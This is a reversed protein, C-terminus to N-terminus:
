KLSVFVMLAHAQNQIVKELRFGNMQTVPPIETGLVQYVVIQLGHDRAFAIASSVRSAEGQPEGQILIEQLNPRPRWDWGEFHMFWPQLGSTWEAGSVEFHPEWQLQQFYFDFYYSRDMKAFLIADDRHALKLWSLVERFPYYQESTDILYNGWYPAKTGDLNVPSMVLNAAILVAPAVAAAARMRPAIEELTIHASALVVPLVLLNFRSYGAYVGGYDLAYMSIQTLFVLGFFLLSFYRRRRALLISGAASLALILGFQEFFSQGIARYVQLNLLAAPVPEFIRSASLTGRLALYFGIPLFTATLLRLEGAIVKWLPGIRVQRVLRCFMFCLLFGVTVDKFFGILVLAYWAPIERTQRFDTKLLDETRLCVLVMLFVVIPELYLISSYYFVLPITAIGFHWLWANPDRPGSLGGHFTWAVASMALLPIVRYLVEHYPGVVLGAVKPILMLMLYNLQPYRLIGTDTPLFAGGRWGFLIAAPLLLAGIVLAWASRRWAAILLLIALTGSALIWSLPIRQLLDLTRRIHGDEDGHWPIVSTIPGLNLLLVGACLAAFFIASDPRVSLRLEGAACTSWIVGLTLTLALLAARTIRGHALNWYPSAVFAVTYVIALAAVVFQRPLYITTPRMGAAVSQRLARGSEIGAAANDAAQRAASTRGVKM